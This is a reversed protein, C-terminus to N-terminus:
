EWFGIFGHISAIGSSVRYGLITFWIVMKVLLVSQDIVAMCDCVHADKCM